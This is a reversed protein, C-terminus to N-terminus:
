MPLPFHKLFEKITIEEVKLTKKNRITIRTNESFCKGCGSKGLLSTFQGEGPIDEIDFNFNNFLITDKEGGKYVQNIGRLNLVDVLGNEPHSFYTTPTIVPEEVKKNGFMSKKIVPQEIVQEVPKVDTPTTNSQGFLKM